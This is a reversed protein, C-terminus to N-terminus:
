ASERRFSSKGCSVATLSARPRTASHHPSARPWAPQPSKPAISIASWVRRSSRRRHRASSSRTSRSRRRRRSEKGQWWAPGHGESGERGQPGPWVPVSVDLLARGRRGASGHQVFDRDRLLGAPPGMFLLTRSPRPIRDCPWRPPWTVPHDVVARPEQGAGVPRRLRDPRGSPRAPVVPLHRHHPPVVDGPLFEADGSGHRAPKLYVLSRMGAKVYSSLFVEFRPLDRQPTVIVDM